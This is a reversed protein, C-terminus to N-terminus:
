SGGHVTYHLRGAQAEVNTRHPLKYDLVIYRLGPIILGGHYINWGWM